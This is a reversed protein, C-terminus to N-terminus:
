GAAAAPMFATLLLASEHLALLLGTVDSDLVDGRAAEFVIL